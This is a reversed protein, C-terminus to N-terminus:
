IEARVVRVPQVVRVPAAFRDNPLWQYWVSAAIAVLVEDACRDGSSREVEASAVRGSANVEVALSGARPREWDIQARRCARSLQINGVDVVEADLFREPPEQFLSGDALEIQPPRFRVELFRWTVGVSDLESAAGFERVTRNTQFSPSFALIIVHLVAAVALGASLSWKAQRELRRSRADRWGPDLRSGTRDEEMEPM